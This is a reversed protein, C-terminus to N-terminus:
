KAAKLNELFPEKLSGGSFFVVGDAGLARCIGMQEVMGEPTNQNHSTGIGIGPCVQCLGKGVDVARKAFKEFFAVHNTYLMPCLMDVLGDRAWAAWDQGILVRANADDPFVAASIRVPRGFAVLSERLERVFRTVQDRNWSLWENWIMNGSDHAKVAALDVGSYDQFFRLTEADFSFFPEAPECPFRIYDLHVWDTQYRAVVEMMLSREYDRVEPLAPNVSTVIERRPSRILWEPHERVRGLVASEPFVCFWPHVTMKRLRAEALFEGLFDWDWQPHRVAIRSPYYVYGATDKVLMILTNIGAAQYADLTSRIKELAAAKEPGFQGPHMWVGRVRAPPPAESTGRGAALLPFCALLLLVVALPRKSM